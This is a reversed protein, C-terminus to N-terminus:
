SAASEGSRDMTNILVAETTERTMYALFCMLVLLITPQIVKVPVFAICCTAIGVVCVFGLSRALSWINTSRMQRAINIGSQTMPIYCIVYLVSPVMHYWRFGMSEYNLASLLLLPTLVAAYAIPLMLLGRSNNRSLLLAFGIAYLLFYPALALHALLEQEWRFLLPHLNERIFTTASITFPSRAVSLAMHGHLNGIGIALGVGVITALAHVTAGVCRSEQYPAHLGANSSSSTNTNSPESTYPNLQPESLNSSRRADGFV